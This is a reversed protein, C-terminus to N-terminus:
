NKVMKFTGTESGATENTITLTITYNGATVAINSGNHELKDATGGLNWSWGDNKRFKIEGDKLTTTVKWTATAYDYDMKTDPTNWDNVTASGVLGIMYAETKYTLGKTDVTLRYWGNDDPTIGSGDVALGSSGKGYAVNADPDKLTYPKTKDLKVFGVYNGDGLASEVKGIVVGDVYLDLRPLGYVAVTVTKVESSYALPRTSTGVAGTGADVVLVSRIRFDVSSSKDAPFKKLLGANLDSVSIKISTDQVSTALVVADEFNNGTKCAELFYNASANFGPNVLTGKFELTKTADDRTFTLNPMTTIAPAVPSSLMVVRTEDKECSSFLGALGLFMLYIISKKNM